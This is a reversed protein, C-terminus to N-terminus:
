EHREVEGRREAARRMRRRHESAHRNAKDKATRIKRVDRVILWVKRGEFRARIYEPDAELIAALNRCDEGTFVKTHNVQVPEM